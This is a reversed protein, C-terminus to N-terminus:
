RKERLSRVFDLYHVRNKEYPGPAGAYYVVLPGADGAWSVIESHIKADADFRKRATLGEIPLPMRESGSGFGLADRWYAAFDGGVQGPGAFLRITSQSHGPLGDHKAAGTAIMVLQTRPGNKTDFESFAFPMFWFPVRVRWGGRDSRIVLLDGDLATAFADPLPALAPMEPIEELGSRAVLENYVHHAGYVGLPEAWSFITRILLDDSTPLLPEGDAHRQAVASSLLTYLGERVAQRRDPALKAYNEILWNNVRAVETAVQEPTFISEALPSAAYGNALKDEAAATPSWTLVLALALTVLRRSAAELAPGGRKKASGNAARTM